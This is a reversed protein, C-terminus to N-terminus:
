RGVVQEPFMQPKWGLQERLLRWDFGAGPDHKRGPAIHEHGAIYAMPFHQAIAACLSALTEYQPEEFHQGELGELEIGISDDNCNGRGRWTSVGAHWARDDCSVFQWLEGNRRVYFHSSVELGRISQFYPHADWDLRNTFLRQVADGGYEGPPLSISHLVILDIQAGQPRPGFNPSPLAKAFRYWGAQWLADGSEAARVKKETTPM